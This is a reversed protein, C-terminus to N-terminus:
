SAGFCEGAFRRWFRRPDDNRGRYSDDTYVNACCNNQSEGYNLCIRETVLNQSETTNYNSKCVHAFYFGYQDYASIPSGATLKLDRTDLSVIPKIKYGLFM